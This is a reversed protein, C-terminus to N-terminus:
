KAQTSECSAVSVPFTAVISFDDYLQHLDSEGFLQLLLPLCMGSTVERGKNEILEKQRQRFRAEM